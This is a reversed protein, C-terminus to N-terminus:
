DPGSPGPAKTDPAKSGLATAVAELLEVERFPKRVFAVHGRMRDRVTNEPLATMIIVPIDATRPEATMANMLAPGDVLPMMFDSIVLHVPENELIDLAKKGNSAVLVRHGADSLIAELWDAIAWEDDVVLVTPV